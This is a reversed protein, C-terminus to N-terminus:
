RALDEAVGRAYDDLWPVPDAHDRLVQQLGADGWTEAAQVAADRMTVDDVALARCVIETRWKPDGLWPQRAICLLVGTAFAPDNSDLCAGQIWGLVAPRNESRLATRIVAEAPHAMGDELPESDFAAHLSELFRRRPQAQRTAIVDEGNLIRPNAM